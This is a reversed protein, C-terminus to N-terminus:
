LRDFFLTYSYTEGPDSEETIDIILTSATVSRIFAEEDSDSNQLVIENNSITYNDNFTEDAMGDCNDDYSATVQTGTFTWTNM